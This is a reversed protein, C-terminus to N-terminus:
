WGTWGVPHEYRDTLGTPLEFRIYKRNAPLFKLRGTFNSFLRGTFNERFIYREPFKQFIVARSFDHYFQFFICHAVTNFTSWLAM